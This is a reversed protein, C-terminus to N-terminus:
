WPPLRVSPSIQWDGGCRSPAAAATSRNAPDITLLGRLFSVAEARAPANLTSQRRLRESLPHRRIMPRFRHTGDPEFYSTRYRASAIQGAPFPGCLSAALLVHEYNLALDLLDDAGKEDQWRRDSQDRETTPRPRSAISEAHQWLPEHSRNLPVDHLERASWVTGFRGRGLERLLKYKGAVVDGRQFQEALEEADDALVSAAREIPPAQRSFERYKRAAASRPSFLLRGTLLEFVTCGLSWLDMEVRLPAGLILEPAHYERTGFSGGQELQNSASGLDALRADGTRPDYLINDPKVDTHAYGSRHLRDLATLIQRAVRRVRAVPLPGKELATELSRGHKEFAMCIHGDHLFSEHLAVIEPCPAAQRVLHHVYIEWTAARAFRRRQIKLAIAPAASV